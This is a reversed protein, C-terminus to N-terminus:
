TWSLGYRTNFGMIICTVAIYRVRFAAYAATDARADETLEVKQGCSIRKTGWDFYGMYVPVNATRAIVHYGTKWRRVPKRTGEPAIALVFYEDKKMEDILSRVLSAANTRDVPVAGMKRLLWGLPGVFMEKKVMCRVKPGGFQAYFLYSVVFDWITTHPVGLILGKKEEIPGGVSTWGMMKLLKSALKPNM